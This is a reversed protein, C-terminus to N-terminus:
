LKGKLESAGSAQKRRKRQGVFSTRAASHAGWEALLGTPGNGRRGGTEAQV